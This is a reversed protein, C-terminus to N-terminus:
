ANRNREQQHAQKLAQATKPNRMDIKITPPEDPWAPVRPAKGTFLPLSDPSAQQPAQRAEQATQPSGTFLPLDGTRAELTFLAPQQQETM